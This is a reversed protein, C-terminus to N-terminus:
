GLLRRINIARAVKRLEAISIGIPTIPPGIFGVLVLSDPLTASDVLECFKRLTTRAADQQQELRLDEKAKWEVSNLEATREAALREAKSPKKVTLAADGKTRKKKLTM